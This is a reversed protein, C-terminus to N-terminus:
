SASPSPSTSESPPVGRTYYEGFLFSMDGTMHIAGEARELFLAALDTTATDATLEEFTMSRLVTNVIDRLVDVSDTVTTVDDENFVLVSVRCYVYASSGTDKINTHFQDGLSIAPIPPPPPESSPEKDGCASLAFSLLAAVAAFLGTKARTM